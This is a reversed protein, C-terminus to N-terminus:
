APRRGVAAWVAGARPERRALDRQRVGSHRDRGLVPRCRGCTATQWAGDDTRQETVVSARTGCAECDLDLGTGVLAEVSVREAYWRGFRREIRVAGPPAPRPLRIRDRWCSTALTVPPPGPTLLAVDALFGCADCTLRSPMRAPVDLVTPYHPRPRGFGPRCADDDGCIM